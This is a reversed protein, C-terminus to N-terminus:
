ALLGDPGDQRHPQLADVRRRVDEIADLRTKLASAGGAHAHRAQELAAEASALVGRLASRIGRELRRRSETVREEFDNKIRASNVELLREQYEAAAREITRRRWPPFAQDM